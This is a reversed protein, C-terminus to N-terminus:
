CNCVTPFPCTLQPAPTKVPPLHSQCVVPVKSTKTVPVHLVCGFFTPIPVHVTQTVPVLVLRDVPCSLVNRAQGPTEFTVPRCDVTINGVPILDKPDFGNDPSGHHKRDGPDDCGCRDEKADHHQLLRAM